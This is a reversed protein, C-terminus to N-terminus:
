EKTWDRNKNRYEKNIWQPLRTPKKRRTKAYCRYKSEDKEELSKMIPRQHMKTYTQCYKPAPTKFDGTYFGSKLKRFPGAPARAL